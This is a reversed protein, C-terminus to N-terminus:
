ALWDDTFILYKTKYIPVYLNSLKFIVRTGKTFHELVNSAQRLMKSNPLQVKNCIIDSFCQLAVSFDVLYSYNM